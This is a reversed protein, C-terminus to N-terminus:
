TFVGFSFHPVQRSNSLKRDMEERMPRTREMMRGFLPPGFGDSTYMLISLGSKQNVLSFIYKGFPCILDKWDFFQLLHLMPTFSPFLNNMNMENM